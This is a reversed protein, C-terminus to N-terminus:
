KHKVLDCIYFYRIEMSRSLQIKVTGNVIGTATDNDCNNPTPPQPYGLERLILTM